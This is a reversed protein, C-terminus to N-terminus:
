VRMLGGENVLGAVDPQLIKGVAGLDALGNPIRGFFVVIENAVAAADDGVALNAVKGVIDPQGAREIQDIVPDLALGVIGLLDRDQPPQQALRGDINRCCHFLGGDAGVFVHLGIRDCAVAM